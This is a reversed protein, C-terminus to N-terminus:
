GKANIKAILKLWNAPERDALLGEYKCKCEWGGSAASNTIFYRVRVRSAAAQGSTAPPRTAIMPLVMLAHRKFYKLGQGESDPVIEADELAKGAKLTNARQKAVKPDNGGMDTLAKSHILVLCIGFPMEMVYDTMMKLGIKLNGYLDRINLSKPISFKKSTVGLQDRTFESMLGAAISSFTDIGLNGNQNSGLWKDFKALGERIGDTWLAGKHAGLYEPIDFVADDPLRIGQARASSLAQQDACLWFSDTITVPKPAPLAPPFQKSISLGSVTKGVGEVGYGILVCRKSPIVPTKTAQTKIAQTSKSAALM